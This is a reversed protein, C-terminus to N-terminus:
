ELLTPIAPGQHRIRSAQNLPGRLTWRNSANSGQQIMTIQESDRPFHSMGVFITMGWIPSDMKSPVIVFHNLFSPSATLRSSSRKSIEVSLTSLGMGDGTAPLTWLIR